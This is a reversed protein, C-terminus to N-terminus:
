AIVHPQMVSGRVTGKAQLAGGFAPGLQRLQRLDLLFALQADNGSLQGSVDLRNAGSALYVRPVQLTDGRLRAEGEGALPQGALSSNIISFVLDAELQPQRIGRLDLKGNLELAPMQPFNGLDQLRFRTVDAKAAFRQDGALSAHGSADLRGAGAQLTIREISLESDALSGRAEVVLRESELPETFSLSFRQRGQAHRFDVDGKLRTARARRDIRKLDLADTHLSLAFAGDVIRGSGQLTGAPQKATGLRADVRDFHWEGPLERFALSLSDLPLKTQDVTGADTNKVRLIGAGDETMVIDADFASGPLGSDFRSLDLGRLMLETGGLLQEGFPRLSAKGSLRAQNADVAIDALVEDLSGGLKLTGRADVSRKGSRAGSDLSFRGDLAYPSTASLNAGGQVRATFTDQEGGSAASFQRLELRYREGDFALGLRSPGLVMLRAPGRRIEGGDVQLDDARLSFPLGIRTPLAPAEKTKKEAVQVAFHQARLVTVHLTNRVLERPRWDFLVDSLTIGSDPTNVALRAIRLPGALRGEVGEAQLAGGSVGRAFSFAARAGSDTGLLWAASGLLFLILLGLALLSKRGRRTM